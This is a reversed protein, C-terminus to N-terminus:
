PGSLGVLPRPPTYQHHWLLNTGNFPAYGLLLEYLSAGLSYIDTRADTREGRAQEPSVYKPTGFASRRVRFCSDYGLPRALGFDVIKVRNKTSLLVNSPKLDRHVIGRRHAHDLGHCVSMLFHLVAAIELRKERRVLSAYNEGDVLEMSIFPKGDAIGIDYLTVTNEHSLAAAARAEELFQVRATRSRALRESLVKYAVPRRLVRDYARFVSGMGGTGLPAQIDYRQYRFAKEKSM